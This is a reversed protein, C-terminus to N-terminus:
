EGKREPGPIPCLQSGPACCSETATGPDLCCALTKCPIAHAHPKALISAFALILTITALTKM